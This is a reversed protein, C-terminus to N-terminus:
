CIKKYKRINGSSSKRCSGYDLLYRNNFFFTQVDSTICLGIKQLNKCTSTQVDYGIVDHGAAHLRHLVGFGMRGLGVVGIKM